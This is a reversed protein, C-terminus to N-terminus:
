RPAISRVLAALQKRQLSSAKAGAWIRLIYGARRAVVNTFQLSCQCADSGYHFGRLPFASSQSTDSGGLDSSDVAAMVFTSGLQSMDWSSTCAGRPLGHLDHQLADLQWSPVDALLVGPYVCDGGARVSWGPPIRMKLTDFVVTNGVRRYPQGMGGCGALGLAAVVCCAITAPRKM